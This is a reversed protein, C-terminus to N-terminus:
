FNYHIAENSKAIGVTLNSTTNTYTISYLLRRNIDCRNVKYRNVDDFNKTGIVEIQTMM